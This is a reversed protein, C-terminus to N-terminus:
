LLYFNNFNFFKKRVGWKAPEVTSIASTAACITNFTIFNKFFLM